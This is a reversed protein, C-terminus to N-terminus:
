SSRVRNSAQKRGEEFSRSKTAVGVVFLDDGEVFASKETWFPQNEHGAPLASAPLLTSALLVMSYAMIWFRKPDKVAVAENLYMM